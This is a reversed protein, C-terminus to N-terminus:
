IVVVVFSPETKNFLLDFTGPLCAACAREQGTPLIACM